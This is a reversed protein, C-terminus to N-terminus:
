ATKLLRDAWSHALLQKALHRGSLWAGEVKGGHLWDGCMGLKQRTNWISGITLAAESDAYRWRHATWSQPMAAGLACFAPLLLVAIEEVSHEVHKESWEASTHLLWTEKSGRGPKSNDRAIWRLPGDNVFAADFPLNLPSDYTLMLAHCARMSVLATLEAMDPASECLLAAAQPSPMALIVATFEHDPDKDNIATLRWRGAKYEIGNIQVGTRIDLGAALLQSPSTMTPTGVYREPADSCHLSGGGFVHMRPKWLSAAGAQQWHEVEARFGADRATFYQAGHDCQWNEGRRTSMRGSVGQSKEFLTVKIGSNHMAAACSLGSIGAGIIAVNIDQKM